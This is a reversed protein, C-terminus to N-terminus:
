NSHPSLISPGVREVVPGVSACDAGLKNCVALFPQLHQLCYEDYAKVSSPVGDGASDMLGRALALFRSRESASLRDFAEILADASAMPPFPFRQLVTWPVSSTLGLLM